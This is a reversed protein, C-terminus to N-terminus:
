AVQTGGGVRPHGRTLNTQSRQPLPEGAWAPIAGDTELEPDDWQPNGRGRPSPGRNSSSAPLTSPTGGGVRPHGGRDVLFIGLPM